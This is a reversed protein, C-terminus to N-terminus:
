HSFKEIFGKLKTGRSFLRIADEQKINQLQLLGKKITQIWNKKLTRFANGSSLLPNDAEEGTGLSAQMDLAKLTEFSGFTSGSGEGIKDAYSCLAFMELESAHCPNVKTLDIRYGENRSGGYVHVLMVPHEPTSNDDFYATMGYLDGSTDGKSIFTTRISNSSDMADTIKTKTYASTQKQVTNWERAYPSSNYNSSINLM